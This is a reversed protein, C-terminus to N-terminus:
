FGPVDKQPFLLAGGCWRCKLSKTFGGDPDVLRAIYCSELWQQLVNSGATRIEATRMVEGDERSECVISVARRWRCRAWSRSEMMPRRTFSESFPAATKFSRILFASDEIDWSREVEGGEVTDVAEADGAEVV